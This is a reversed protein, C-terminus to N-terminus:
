TQNLLAGEPMYTRLVLYFDGEPAPLWNTTGNTPPKNGISLTMGGDPDPTISGKPLSGLKYRNIPNVVFNNDMGYMTLSWLAGQPAGGPAFHITYNNAGSLRAGDVDTATNMYIAEAIDNALIGGLCQLSARLLFLDALGSRGMAVPPYVWGNVKKGMASMAMRLLAMGDVVARKLGAQTAADVKTVDLGPGIGIEAYSRVIAAQGEFPPNEAMARNMTKWVALPDTRPDFPQWVDRNAPATKNTGWLGLPTMKYQDQIHNVAAVDDPDLVLTRGIILAANTRSRPLAIDGKPLTGKWNPGIIAYNGAKTGTTRKGVYAFNDADFSAMEMTYYRDGVDPVSLILPENTLDLWAISYLTDNNPTGGDRYKATALTRAHFFQNLPAYPANDSHTHQTVWKWRVDSLFVWPFGFVFAQMGQMYAYTERWDPKAPATTVPAAAAGSSSIDAARVESNLALGFVLTVALLLTAIRKM